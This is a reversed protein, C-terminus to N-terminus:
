EGFLHKILARRIKFVDHSVDWYPKGDRTSTADQPIGARAQMPAVILSLRQIQAIYDQSGQRAIVTVRYGSSGNISEINITVFISDAENECVAKAKPQDGLLIRDSTASKSIVTPLGADRLADILSIATDNAFSQITWSKLDEGSREVVAVSAPDASSTVCFRNRKDVRLRDSRLIRTSDASPHKMTTKAGAITGVTRAASAPLHIIAVGGVAATLVIKKVIKRLPTESYLALHYRTRYM